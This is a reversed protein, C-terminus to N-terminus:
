GTFVEPGNVRLGEMRRMRGFLLVRRDKPATKIQRWTTESMTAEM